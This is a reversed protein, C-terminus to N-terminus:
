FNYENYFSRINSPGQELAAITVQQCIGFNNHTLLERDDVITSQEHHQDMREFQNKLQIMKFGEEGEVWSHLENWNPRVSTELKFTNGSIEHSMDLGTCNTFKRGEADLAILSLTAKELNSQAEVRNELWTLRQIAKVEVAITDFNNPNRHDHAKLVTRGNNGSKLCAQETM